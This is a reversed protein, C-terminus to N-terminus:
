SVFSDYNGLDVYDGVFRLHGSRSKYPIQSQKILLLTKFISSKGSGNTGCLVTLPSLNFKGLDNNFMRINKMTLLNFM